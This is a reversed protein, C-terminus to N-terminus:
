RKNGIKAADFVFYSATKLKHLKDNASAGAKCVNVHASPQGSSKNSAAVM